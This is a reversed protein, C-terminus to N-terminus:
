VSEEFTTGESTREALLVRSELACVCTQTVCAGRGSGGRASGEGEDGDCDMLIPYHEMPLYNVSESM